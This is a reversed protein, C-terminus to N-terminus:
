RRSSPPLASRYAASNCRAPASTQLFPLRSRATSMLRSAASPWSRRLPASTNTGDPVYLDGTLPHIAGAVPNGLEASTAPGGLGVAPTADTFTTGTQASNGAVLTLIDNVDLKTVRFYSNDNTYLDGAPDLTLQYPANLRGLYGLTGYPGAYGSTGGGGALIHLTGAAYGHGLGPTTATTNTGNVMLIYSGADMFLDGSSDM